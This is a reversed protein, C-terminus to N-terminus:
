LDVPVVVVRMRLGASTLTPPEVVSEEFERQNNHSIRQHSLYCEPSSPLMRSPHVDPRIPEGAWNFIDPDNSIDLIAKFLRFFAHQPGEGYAISISVGFIGMMCYATDEGRTTDRKAVWSMRMAIDKDVRPRFDHIQRMSITTAQHVANLISGCAPDAKELPQLRDYGKENPMSTLPAWDGAYFKMRRPALLEQLTWGRTFWRDAPMDDLSTTEALYAICIYASEYWKFMSRISEDLEASSTKDICVTDAWAFEVGYEKYAVECFKKLKEYGQGVLNRYKKLDKYSPEDKGWTHSLIAFRTKEEVMRDVIRGRIKDASASSMGAHNAEKQIDDETVSNMESTLYELVASREMLQMEPTTLNILRIPMNNFVRHQLKGRI